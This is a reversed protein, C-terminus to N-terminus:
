LKQSKNRLANPFLSNMIAFECVGLMAQPLKCMCVKDLCPRKRGHLALKCIHPRASHQMHQCLIISAGEDSIGM